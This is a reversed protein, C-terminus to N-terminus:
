LGHSFPCMSTEVTCGSDVGVSSHQSGSQETLSITHLQKRLFGLLLQPFSEAGRLGVSPPWYLLTFAGCVLPHVLSPFLSNFVLKYM